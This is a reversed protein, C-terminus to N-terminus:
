EQADLRYLHATTRLLLSNGAVAPSALMDGDLENVALEKYERGTAVVTTQGKRNSVYVRDKTALLSPWFDGRLRQRWVQEGSAAETCILNGRESVTYLLGDVLVPSSEHPADELMKWVVHTDTVDGAGGQRIAWLQTGGPSGGTNVFLLGGGYVIRSITSDDRYRARWLEEGTYPNHGTVLLAGNSIMQPKGDVDIVIPTQYSKMYVGEMDHYLDPPRQYEWVTEGTAKDLAVIFHKDTGELHLILLNEFIIPSSAAGQMHDCSLDTRTWLIKASETDIAATGESGYHVYVRGPELAASPTAYSNSPNIHQPEAIQFVPIDHVVAGTELDLCVAYRQTGDETATTVWVQKGLVVPTSFGLDHIATKWTVHETESWTLPLGTAETRGDQTPGRWDTWDAACVPLCMAGLIGLVLWSVRM